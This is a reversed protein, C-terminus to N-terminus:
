PRLSSLLMFLGALIPSIGMIKLRVLCYSDKKIASRVKDSKMAAFLEEPPIFFLTAKPMLLEKLNKQTLYFRRLFQTGSIIYAFCCFVAAFLFLIRM